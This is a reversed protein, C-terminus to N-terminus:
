TFIYKSSQVSIYTGWWGDNTNETHKHIYVHTIITMAVTGECAIMSLLSLSVAKLFLPVFNSVSNVKSYQSQSFPGTPFPSCSNVVEISWIDAFYSLIYNDGYYLAIGSFIMLKNGDTNNRTRLVLLLALLLLCTINKRTYSPVITIIFKDYSGKIENCPWVCRVHSTIGSVSERTVQLLFHPKKYVGHLQLTEGNVGM